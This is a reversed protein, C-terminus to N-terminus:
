PTIAVAWQGLREADARIAQGGARRVAPEIIQRLSSTHEAAFPMAVFVAPKASTCTADM